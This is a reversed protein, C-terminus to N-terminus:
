NPVTAADFAPEYARTIDRKFTPSGREFALDVIKQQRAALGGDPVKVRRDTARALEIAALRALV